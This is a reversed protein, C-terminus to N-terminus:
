ELSCTGPQERSRQAHAVLWAVLADVSSFDVSQGTAVHEMRGAWHGDEPRADRHLHLVYALAVPYTPQTNLM